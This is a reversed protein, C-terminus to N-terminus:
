FIPILRKREVKILIKLSQTPIKMIFLKVQWILSMLLLPCKWNRIDITGCQWLQLCKQSSKQGAPQCTCFLYKFKNFNYKYCYVMFCQKQYKKIMKLGYEWQTGRSSARHVLIVKFITPLNNTKLSAQMMWLYCDIITVGYGM